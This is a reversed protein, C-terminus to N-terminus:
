QKKEPSLYHLCTITPSIYNYKGRNDLQVFEAYFMFSMALSNQIGFTFFNVGMIKIYSQVTVNRSGLELSLFYINANCKM